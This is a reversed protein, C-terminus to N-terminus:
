RAADSLSNILHQASQDDMQGILATDNAADYPIDLGIAGAFDILDKAKFNLGKSKGLIIAQKAQSLIDAPKQEPAPAPPAVPIIKKAMADYFYFMSASIADATKLLDKTIMANIIDKSYAMLMTKATLIPDGYPKGSWSKSGGEKPLNMTYQKEGNYEKEVVDFEIEQGIKDKIRESFCTYEKGEGTIVKYLTKEGNAYSKPTVSLIKAKM